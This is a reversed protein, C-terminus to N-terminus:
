EVTNIKVPLALGFDHLGTLDTLSFGHLGTLNTM